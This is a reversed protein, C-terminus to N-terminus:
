SGFKGQDIMRELEVDAAIPRIAETLVALDAIRARLQNHADSKRTGPVEASLDRIRDIADNLKGDVRKFLTPADERSIPSLVFGSLEKDKDTLFINGSDRDYEM